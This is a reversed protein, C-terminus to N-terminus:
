DGLFADTADRTFGDVDVTLGAGSLPGPEQTLVIGLASTSKGNGATMGNLRVAASSVSAEAVASM